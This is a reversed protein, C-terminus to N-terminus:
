IENGDKDFAKGGDDAQKWSRYCGDTDTFELYWAKRWEWPEQFAIKAITAKIGQCRITDGEQLQRKM